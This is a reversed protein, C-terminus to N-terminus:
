TRRAAPVMSSPLRLFTSSECVIPVLGTLCFQLSVSNTNEVLRISKYLEPRAAEEPEAHM